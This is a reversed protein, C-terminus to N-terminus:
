EYLAEFLGAFRDYVVARKVKMTPTLEGSAQSLDHDLITFRKVQEIRAFHENCEDVAKQIEARVGPDRALAAPDPDVGLQEALKPAEETDLTVLAVLYPRNDGYVVAESIWRNEKLKEEINAPSINKGSSTIILDKKRGTVSVFGDECRGLDGTHLWGDVVTESTAEPNKFYGAFVHPGKMLIEGDEAIRVEADPLPPGVTGFRFRRPTNVSCAATSETMGYGELVPIGCADFFELVDKSIPAAGTLAIQLEGGFLARVKSLVAHDAIRRATGLVRGAPRGQHERERAKRGTALAWNVFARKPAPQEAIGSTAATFIKEFVRPVSPFHTPRAEKLDDLLKMPDRQWYALTGGVDLTVMQTVRALSHALPLFMFIVLGDTDGLDLQRDYADMVYMFNRHTLMCGKPPGTTGSTYVLTAVEDPTSKAVREEVAGDGAEAGRARLEDLGMADDARGEFLIVHQLEPCEARVERVKALQEENECFVVRADSHQLVYRCEEPSNTHYIPALTAGACLAGFDALTWEPRTNSLIAVRDGREIGLEILGAGIERAARGLEAFSLERWGGDEKWRLAAGDHQEAAKLLMDGLTRAHTSAEELTHPHVATDAPKM